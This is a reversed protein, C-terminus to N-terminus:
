RPALRALGTADKVILDGATFIPLAWTESSGALEYTKEAEFAATSRKAVVLTGANTLFVVHKPLLLASAHEAARGETAWKTAGTRADLAVFQGKRRASMGYILGDAFVPTSMYMAVDANKWAQEASWTGSKEDLRYAHTGQRVGSVVLENGTWIPTVINEHWEDAFPVTWLQAGSAPNIGVVSSNTLAVLMPTKGVIIPVPTAYGPGAGKWEWITRGSAPDLAFVSGGRVDSGVQVILRGDAVIPSAATGCFLKSTDVRASYDQTWIQKGTAADWAILHGSAGLTYLRGGSVLPTANPGKAMKSAYQNKTFNAQYAQQWKVAGMRADVATVVEQPDKRSHVFVVGADLVPSAYGEGVDLRWARAYSAPWVSPADAATVLADRAPGRWQPWGQASLSAALVLAALSVSTILRM